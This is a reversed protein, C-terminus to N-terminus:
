YMNIVYVEMILFIHFIYNIDNKRKNIENLCHFCTYLYSKKKLSSFYSNIINYLTIASVTYPFHVLQVLPKYPQM